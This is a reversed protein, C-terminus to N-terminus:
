KRKKSGDTLLRNTSDAEAHSRMALEETNKFNNSWCSKACVLRGKMKKRCSSEEEGEGREKGGEEGRRRRFRYFGKGGVGAIGHGGEKKMKRGGDKKM